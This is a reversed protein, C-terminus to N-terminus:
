RQMSHDNIFLYIYLINHKFIKAVSEFVAKFDEFTLPFYGLYVNCFCQFINSACQKIGINIKLHRFCKSICHLFLSHAHIHERSHLRALQHNLNNVIFQCLQHTALSSFKLQIVPRRDYQHRTQLTRTFSCETAFKSIHELILLVFVRQKHSTINVTWGSDFLQINNAFM